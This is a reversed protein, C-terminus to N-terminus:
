RKRREEREVQRKAAKLLAGALNYSGFIRIGKDEMMAIYAEACSVAWEQAAKEGNLVYIATVQEIDDQRPWTM